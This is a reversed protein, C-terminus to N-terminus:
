ERPAALLGMEQAQQCAAALAACFEKMTPFREDRDFATAQALVTKLDSPCNLEKLFQAWTRIAALPIRKGHFSFATTMGLSYIDCRHDVDTGSEMGEPSAYIFKGLAGTRTGGTSDALRVLDFDTLRALGTGADLLINDPTVDRHIIGQEHASALANGVGLVVGIRQEMTLIDAVVAAYFTGGGVYEMVFYHYGGDEHSPDLVRVVNPHTLRQMARAGRRFRELREASGLHQGHLVKIAVLNRTEEDFAKWVTAFGGSGLEEVLLYRDSLCDGHVLQPGNRLKRKLELLGAEIPQLAEASAGSVILERRTKRLQEAREAIDRTFDDRPSPEPPLPVSGSSRDGPGGLNGVTQTSQKWDSPRFLVVRVVSQHLQETFQPPPLSVRDMECRMRPVGSANLEVHSLHQFIRAIVPNRRFPVVREPDENLSAVPVAEPLRGFSTIEVRDTYVEVRTPQDKLAPTEYDRHVLANALAERLVIEPIELEDRDKSGVQGRRRLGAGAWSTLWKMGEDFLELLNGRVPNIRAGRTARFSGDYAVLQLGCCDFKGALLNRPAFCLFAGLVPYGDRFCDLLQLQEALTLPANGRAKVEKGIEERSMSTALFPQILTQDLEELTHALVPQRDYNLDDHNALFKVPAPPALPPREVTSRPQLLDAFVNKLRGRIMAKLSTVDQYDELPTVSRSDSSTWDATLEKKRKLLELWGEVVAPDIMRSIDPPNVPFFALVPIPSDKRNRCRDLENWTVRGIREKFVFIAINARDLDPSVVQDQGGVGPPADYRWKWVRVTTFGTSNFAVRRLPELERQLELEMNRVAEAEENADESHGVFILLVEPGFKSPSRPPKM